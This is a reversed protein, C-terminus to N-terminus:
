GTIKTEIEETKDFYAYYNPIEELLLKEGQGYKKFQDRFRKLNNFLQGNYGFNHFITMKPIYKIAFGKQNARFCFEIDEGAANPFTENFDVQEAVEKTIAMNATTGYLLRDSNKIRRGNLTGNINHYTGFWGKDFAPTDGSLIQFDRNSIFSKSITEIWKESLICDTDTFAIIDSGNNIAIRKGANRATAPGSNHKLRKSIIAKPFSYNVPSCDDIVIVAYPAVTQKEISKLLNIMDQKDKDTKIFTPIVISLKSRDPIANKTPKPFDFYNHKNSGNGGYNKFTFVEFIKTLLFKFRCPKGRLKEYWYDLIKGYPLNSLSSM